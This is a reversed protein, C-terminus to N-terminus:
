PGALIRSQSAALAHGAPSRPVEVQAFVSLIAASEGTCRLRRLLGPDSILQILGSTLSFYEASDMSPLAVLLVMRVPVRRRPCWDIAHHSRGFAFAARKVTPLQAYPLVLGSAPDTTLLFTRNLAEHGLLLPDPVLGARCLLGALELLAGASDGAQLRPEILDPATFAALNM